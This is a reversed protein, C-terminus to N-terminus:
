WWAKLVAFGGVGVVVRWTRTSLSVWAEFLWGGVMALGGVVAVVAVGVLGAFAGGLLTPAAGSPTSTGRRLALPPPPPVLPASVLPVPVLSRPLPPALVPPPSTQPPTPPFSPRPPPPPAPPTLSFRLSAQPRLRCAAAEICGLACAPAPASASPPLPPPRL